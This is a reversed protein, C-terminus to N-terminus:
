GGAGSDGALSLALELELESGSKMLGAHSLGAWGLGATGYRGKISGKFIHLSDSKAGFRFAQWRVFEMEPDDVDITGRPNLNQGEDVDSDEDTLLLPHMSASHAPSSVRSGDKDKRNRLLNVPDPYEDTALGTGVLLLETSSSLPLAARNKRTNHTPSQSM